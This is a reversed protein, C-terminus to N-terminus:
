VEGRSSIDHLIKYISKLRHEKMLPTGKLLHTEIFRVLRAAGRFLWLGTLFVLTALSPRITRSILSRNKAVEVELGIVREQLSLLREPTWHAAHKEFVALTWHPDNTQTWQSESFIRYEATIGAVRELSTLESLRLWYDWDELRELSEDFFGAREILSRDFMATMIPIFNCLYLREADFDLGGYQSKQQTLKYDEGSWRYYGIECDSYALGAGSSELFRVLKEVHHEYFLDDDDLFNVYKGTAARLGANAAAARGRHGENLYRISLAPRFEDVLDGVEVGGDNVVIVELHTYTQARVSSLAQRLLNLRNHTRIIISVLPSTKSTPAPLALFQRNAFASIPSDIIQPGTLLFFGEAYQCAPSVTLARYRNLGIACDLYSHQGLQSEYAECAHRKKEIVPSIDVLTNIRLPTNFEFFAVQAQSRTRQMATWLLAAAARHDPHFESPSPAYIMSPHYENLVEALRRVNRDDAELERDALGWFELDSTGLIHCATRAESKRLAVYDEQAYNENGGAKAGDTLFLVRVPDGHECHLALAGGCGLSEDDPHPSLVLVRQNVLRTTAFPVYQSESFEGFHGPNSM